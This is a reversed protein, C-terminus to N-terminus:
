KIQITTLKNLFNNLNMKNIESEWLRLVKFGKYLLENTRLYDKIKQVKQKQSLNNWNDYVELNGHWYDGDCEIVVNQEPLFIDCQYPRELELMNRHTDYNIDLRNLFDQVKLEIKTDKFPFVQKARNKKIVKKLKQAKKLGHLEEYSRGKLAKSKKINTEESLKKGFNPHNEKKSFRKLAHQRMKEISEKSFTRGKQTESRKKNSEPTHIQKARALKIKEIAEKSHKKGFFSHNEGRRSESMQKKTEKSHKTGKKM